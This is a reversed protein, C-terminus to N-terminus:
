VKNKKLYALFDEELIFFKGFVKYGKLNGSTIATRLTRLSINYNFGLYELTFFKSQSANVPLALRPRKTGANKKEKSNETEINMINTYFFIYFLM